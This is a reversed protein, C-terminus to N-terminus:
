KGVKRHQSWDDNYGNLVTSDSIPKVGPSGHRREKLTVCVACQMFEGGIRVRIQPRNDRLIKNFYSRSVRKSLDDPYM